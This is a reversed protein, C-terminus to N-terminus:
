KSARASAEMLLGTFALIMKANVEVIDEPVLFHTCNLRRAVGLVYSANELKEEETIGATVYSYDIARSNLSALLDVFFLGNSLSKDQFSSINASKGSARVKAIAWNLVDVDSVPRGGYSLNAILKLSAGTAIDNGDIGVIVLGM